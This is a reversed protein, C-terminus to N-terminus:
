FIFNLGSFVRTRNYSANMAEGRDGGFGYDGFGENWGLPSFDSHVDYYKCGLELFMWPKLQQTLLFGMQTITERPQYGMGGGCINAELERYNIYYNTSQSAFFLLYTKATLKHTISGYVGQNKTDTYSPQETDIVKLKYGVKVQTAKSFLYTMDVEVFPENSENKNRETDATLVQGPVTLRSDKRNPKRYEYGARGNIIVSKGIRNKLGGAVIWAQYDKEIIDYDQKIYRTDIIFLTTPLLRYNVLGMFTHSLYSLSPNVIGTSQMFDLRELNYTFDFGIKKNMRYDVGFAAAYLGYDANESLNPAGFAYRWAYEAPTSQPVQLTDGPQMPVYPQQKYQFAQKVGLTIRDSLDYRIIADVDQNNDFKDGPRREYAINTYQWNVGYFSKEYPMKFAVKPANISEWSHVKPNSATANNDYQLRTRFSPTFFHTWQKKGDESKPVLLDNVAYAADSLVLIAIISCAIFSLKKL